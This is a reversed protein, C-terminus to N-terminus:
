FSFCKKEWLKELLLEAPPEPGPDRMLSKTTLRNAPAASTPKWVRPKTVYHEVSEREGRKKLKFERYGKDTLYWWCGESQLIKGEGSKRPFCFWRITTILLSGQTLDPQWALARPWEFGGPQECHWTPLGRKSPVRCETRTNELLPPM